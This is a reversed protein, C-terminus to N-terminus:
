QYRRYVFDPAEERSWGDALEGVLAHHPSLSCV